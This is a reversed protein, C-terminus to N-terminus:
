STVRWSFASGFLHVAFWSIPPALFCCLRKGFAGGDQAGLGDVVCHRWLTMVDSAPESFFRSNPLCQMAPSSLNLKGVFNDLIAAM